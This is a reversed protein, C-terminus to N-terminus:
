AIGFVISSSTSWVTVRTSSRNASLAGIVVGQAPMRGVAYDESVASRRRKEHMKASEAMKRNSGANGRGQEGCLGSTPEIILM